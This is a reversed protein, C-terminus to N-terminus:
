CALHLIKSPFFLCTVWISMGLSDLLSITDALSQFPSYSLWIYLCMFSSTLFPSCKSMFSSCQTFHWFVTLKAVQPCHFVSQYICVMILSQHNVKCLSALTPYMRCAHLSAYPSNRHVKSELEIACTLTKKLRWINLKIHKLSLHM